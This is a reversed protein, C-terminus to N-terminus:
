CKTDESLKKLLDPLEQEEKWLDLILEKLISAERSPCHPFVAVGNLHDVPPGSELSKLAQWAIIISSDLCILIYVLLDYPKILFLNLNLWDETSNIDARSDLQKVEPVILGVEPNLLNINISNGGEFGLFYTLTPFGVNRLQSFGTLSTFKKLAKLRLFFRRLSADSIRGLWFIGPNLNCPTHLLTKASCM